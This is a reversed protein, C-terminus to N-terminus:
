YQVCIRILNHNEQRCNGLLPTEDFKPGWNDLLGKLWLGQHGLHTKHLPFRKFGHRGQRDLQVGRVFFRECYESHPFGNLFWWRAMPEFQFRPRWPSSQSVTHNALSVRECLVVRSNNDWTWRAALNCNACWRGLAQCQSESWEWTILASPLVFCSWIQACFLVSSPHNTSEAANVSM